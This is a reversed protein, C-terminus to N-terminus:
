YHISIEFTQGSFEIHLCFRLNELCVRYVESCPRELSWIIAQIRHSTASFYARVKLTSGRLLGGLYHTTTTSINVFWFDTILKITKISLQSIKILNAPIKKFILLHVFFPWGKINKIFIHFLETTYVCEHGVWIASVDSHSSLRIYTSWRETMKSSWLRFKTM